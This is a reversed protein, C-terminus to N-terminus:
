HAAAKSGAPFALREGEREIWAVTEELFAAEPRSEARRRAARALRARLHANGFLAIRDALTATSRPDELVFGETGDRIMEAAGNQRTTIVPLGCAMAEIAVRSFPDYFTPHVLFDAAQYLEVLDTRAGVFEVDPVSMRPRWRDRGAIILKFGPPLNKWAELLCLLGKLRFNHAAFLGLVREGAGYKERLRRREEQAAPKFRELDAGTRVVVIRDSPLGYHAEGYRRVFDSPAIVLPRKEGRLPDLFRREMRLLLWHKPSLTSAAGNWWGPTAQRNAELTHAYFGGRALFVDAHLVHRVALVLDPLLQRLRRDVTRAFLWDRVGRPVPPSRVAHLELNPIAHDGCSMACLQLSHGRAGLALLIRELSREAGGKAPHFHDIVLAM